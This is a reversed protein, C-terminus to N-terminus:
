QVTPVRLSTASASTASMLSRAALRHGHGFAHGGEVTALLDDTGADLPPTPDVAHHCHGADETFAHEEVHGLVFPVRDDLSVQLAM